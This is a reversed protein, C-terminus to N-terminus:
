VMHRCSLVSSYSWGLNNRRPLKESGSSSTSYIKTMRTSSSPEQATFSTLARTM